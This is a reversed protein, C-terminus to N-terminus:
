PKPQGAGSGGEQTQLFSTHARPGANDGELWEALQRGLVRAAFGKGADTLWSENRAVFVGLTSVIPFLPPPSAM